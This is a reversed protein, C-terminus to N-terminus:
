ENINNILGESSFLQIKCLFNFFVMLILFIDKTTTKYNEM